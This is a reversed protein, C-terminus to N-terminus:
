GPRYCRNYALTSVQDRLRFAAPYIPLLDPIQHVRPAPLLDFRNLDDGRNNWFPVTGSTFGIRVATQPLFV